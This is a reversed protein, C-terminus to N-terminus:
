IDLQRVRVATTTSVVFCELRHVTEISFMKWWTRRSQASDYFVIGGSVPLQQSVIQL